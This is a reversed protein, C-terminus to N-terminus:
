VETLSNPGVAALGGWPWRDHEWTPCLRGGAREHRGRDPEPGQDPPAKGEEQLGPEATPGTCVEPM